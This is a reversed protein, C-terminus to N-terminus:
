KKSKQAKLAAADKEAQIDKLKQKKDGSKKEEMKAQADQQGKKRAEVEEGSAAM